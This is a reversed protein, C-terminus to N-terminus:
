IKNFSRDIRDERQFSVFVSLSETQTLGKSTHTHTRTNFFVYVGQKKGNKGGVLRRWMSNKQRHRTFAIRIGVIEGFLVLVRVGVLRRDGVKM